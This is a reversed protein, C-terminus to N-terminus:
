QAPIATNHAAGRAAAILDRRAASYGDDQGARRAQRDDLIREAEDLRGARLGADITLREFVDRQAHSGGARPMTARAAALHAFALGYDGEGFAHLGAAAALGPDAMREAVDDTQGVADANMRAMMTAIASDREGGILALLYHM